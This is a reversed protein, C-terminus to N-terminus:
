KEGVGCAVGLMEQRIFHRNEHYGATSPLNLQLFVYGTGKYFSSTAFTLYRNKERQEPSQFNQIANIIGNSLNRRSFRSEKAMEYVASPSQFPNGNGRFDGDLVCQCALQILEDWRYSPRNAEKRRKYESSKIFSAWEGEGIMLSDYNQGQVGIFHEKAGEDFNSFYHALLDEEGIYLLNNQQKIAKEKALLYSRFDYITDLEGLMIELNHSDFIHVPNTKELNVLFPIPPIGDVMKGYSIALSGFVNDDSYSACAEKAGHAVIINHIVLNETPIKIPFPITNREDLFIDQPHEQVYKRAGLSTKIQKDIVEKKWRNWQILIDKKSDEFKRSERDFFIFVHNEFVALLDCLEKRDAKYPNPYTWLKM